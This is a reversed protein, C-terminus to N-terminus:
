GSAIRRGPGDGAPISEHRPLGDQCTRPQRREKKSPRAIRTAAVATVMIFFFYLTEPTYISPTSDTAGDIILFLLAGLLARAPDIKGIVIMRQLARATCFMLLVFICLGVYGIDLLTQLMFNHATYLDPHSAGVFLYAYGLDAGSTIQGNAGYGYIQAIGPHALFSFVAHWITTRNTATVLNEGNRSFTGVLSTHSVLGLVGSVIVTTAPVLFAIYALGRRQGFLLALIVAAIAYLLAGRSDTALLAYTSSLLLLFAIMRKRGAVRVVSVASTALAVGAIDGFNTVGNAFPFLVRTSHVGVFSLLQAPTGANIAAIPEGLAATRHFGVVHLLVNVAVYAGPACCAIFIRNSRERHNHSSSFYLYCFLVLLGIGVVQFVVHRLSEYAGTSGGRILAVTMLLVFVGVLVGLFSLTRGARPLPPLMAVGVLLPALTIIRITTSPTDGFVVPLRLWLISFLMIIDPLGYKIARARPVTTVRRIM